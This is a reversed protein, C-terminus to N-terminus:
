CGSRRTRGPTAPGTGGARPRPRWQYRTLDCRGTPDLRIGERELLRRQLDDGGLHGPLSIRGQANIVRHWPLPTTGNYAHLAYGVLRAQGRLGAERAIQGYTAVRGRPIRRVTAYIAAYLPSRTTEPMTEVERRLAFVPRGRADLSGPVDTSERMTGAHNFAAAEDALTGECM